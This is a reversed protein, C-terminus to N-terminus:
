AGIADWSKLSVVTQIYDENSLTVQIKTIYLTGVILEGSFVAANALVVTDGVDDNSTGPAGYGTIEVENGRNYFAANCVEGCGNRIEKLDSSLTFSVSQTKLSLEEDPVGWV